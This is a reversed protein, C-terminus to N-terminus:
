RQFNTPGQKFFARGKLLAAEESAAEEPAQDEESWRCCQNQGTGGQARGISCDELQVTTLLAAYAALIEGEGPWRKALWKM